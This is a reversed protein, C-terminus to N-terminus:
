RPKDACLNIYLMLIVIGGACEFDTAARVQHVMQLLSANGPIIRHDQWKSGRPVTSPDFSAEASGSLPAAQLRCSRVGRLVMTMNTFFDRNVQKQAYRM